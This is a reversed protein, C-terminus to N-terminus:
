AAYAAEARLDVLRFARGQIIWDALEAPAVREAKRQIGAALEEPIVSVAGSGAPSAALAGLGLVFALLALRQNTSLASLSLKM